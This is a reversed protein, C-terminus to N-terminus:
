WDRGRNGGEAGAGGGLRDGRHGGREVLVLMEAIQLAEEASAPQSVLLSEIDVGLRKCGPRISRTSWTSSRRWGGMKRRSGWRMCACDDDQREIGPWVVRHDAGAAVGQGGLALDLSLAGTSIGEVEMHSGEGLKM